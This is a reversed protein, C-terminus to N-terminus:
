KLFNVSVKNKSLTENESALDFATEEFGTIIDKKAGAELLYKLIVDDKSVLAAKHLATIGEKNKANIDIGLGQLRKLLSLDNKAVAIHYLTSGDGQPITLDLGQKQLLTFKKQFESGESRQGNQVSAKELLYYALNNGKKDLVKADAGKSILYRVVDSSNSRVAMTLATLGQSNAQNINKVKPLLLAYTVTDRNSVAASMFVTNGNEDTKNVDVGKSIFYNIMEAQGGRRVLSHLANEGNRSIATPKINLSELYQLFELQNIGVRGAQVAMLIAHANPKVGKEQLKKLLNVDGARAAYSFANNGSIDTSNIDLGKSIFYNTLSLDKDNAISTLLLNAGDANLMKKLDVGHAIYTDFVKTNQTSGFFLPLTGRNDPADIKAGKSLLYAVVEANGRSTAWHLYIRNDHTIKDVPNGRLSLLYLITATPASGNIALSAPDYHGSNFASPDSGKAIEAKVAEVDPRGQWFSAELLRNQQAQVAVSLLLSFGAILLKKM